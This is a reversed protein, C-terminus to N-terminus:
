GAVVIPHDPEPRTSRLCTLQSIPYAIAMKFIDERIEVCAVTEWVHVVKGFRGSNTLVSDGVQIEM